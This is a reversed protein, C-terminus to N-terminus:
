KKFQKTLIQSVFVCMAWVCMPDSDDMDGDEVEVDQRVQLDESATACM